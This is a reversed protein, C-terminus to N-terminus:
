LEEGLPTVTEECALDSEHCCYFDDDKHNSRLGKYRVKQPYPCLVGNRMTGDQQPASAPLKDPAIGSEVWSVLAKFLGAPYYGGAGTFCHALGPAEFVRYYDHVRNDKAAVQDFFHTTSNPPITSDALGHYSLIKGGVDRFADLNPEVNCFPGYEEESAQFIDEFEAATVASIDFDPDKKVLFRIWEDIMSGTKGVCTGNQYCVTTALGHIVTFGIDEEVLAAGKKLGWWLPSGDSKRVGTWTANAVKAATESILITEPVGTDNCSIPEGVVSHPDFNCNDPDSIIGDVSGDDADCYDIAAQTIALLECNKSYQGMAKMVLQPWLDGVGILTLDLAPASAAIGNFATPYKEALKMGQRGGQSCGSWYSHHPPKGFYSETIAKGIISLENLSTYGFNELLHYNVHGPSSLVWDAPDSSAHGADTTAASYGEAVAGLMSYAALPFALGGAAWGGGGIGQMRGNWGDQPLFVDVTVNDTTGTHTYTTTVHCYSVGQVDLAGNNVYLSEPIHTTVNSILSSSLSTFQVGPLSPYPITAPSCMM